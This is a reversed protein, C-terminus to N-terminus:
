LPIMAGVLKGSADLAVGWQSSGRAHKVEYMDMGEAVGTLELSQVAGLEALKVQLKPLDKRIAAGLQPNMDRLNPTGAVIGDIMQRLMAASGPTPTQNRAKVANAQRLRDATAADIRPMPTSAGNQHLVAVATGSSDRAFSLEADTDTAFFMTQSQPYMPSATLGPFVVLLHDGERRVTTVGYAEGYQYDGAYGDLVSTPVKVLVRQQSADGAM